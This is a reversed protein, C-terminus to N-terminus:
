EIEIPHIDDGTTPVFLPCLFYLHTKSNYNNDFDYIRPIVHVSVNQSLSTQLYIKSSTGNGFLFIRRM